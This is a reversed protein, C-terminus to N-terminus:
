NSDTQVITDNEYRPFKKNKLFDLGRNLVFETNDISRCPAEFLNDKGIFLSEMLPDRSKHLSVLFLWVFGGFVFRYWKQKKVLICDPKFMIHAIDKDPLLICMMLCGFNKPNGPDERFLMSKLKRESLGLIIEDWMEGEAVSARWLISLQFLRFKKYDINNFIYSGEDWKLTKKWHNTILEDSKTGYLTNKVYRENKGIKQECDNCLLYERFGKQLLKNRENETSNMQVIRNKSDRMPYYFYEPIIHSNKLIKENDCLKCIGKIKTEPM